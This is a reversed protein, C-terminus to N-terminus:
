IATTMVFPLRSATSSPMDNTMLVSLATSSAIPSHHTLMCPFTHRESEVEDSEWQEQAVGVSVM